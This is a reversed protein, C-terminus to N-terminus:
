TLSHLLLLPPPPNPAAHWLIDLRVLSSKLFVHCLFSCCCHSAPQASRQPRPTYRSIVDLVVIFDDYKFNSMDTGLIYAKVKLQVDQLLCVLPMHPIQVFLYIFFPPHPSPLMQFAFTSFVVLFLSPSLSFGNTGVQWIRTLGHELKKKVYSRDVVSDDSEAAAAGDLPVWLFFLIAIFKGQHM